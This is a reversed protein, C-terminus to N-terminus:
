GIVPVGFLWFMLCGLLTSGAVRLRRKKLRSRLLGHLVQGTRALHEGAKDTVLDPLMLLRSAIEMQTSLEGLSGLAIRLHHIYRGEEGCAQGEAVNSPVSVAARRMQSSMEYRENDPLSKVAGYVLLCLDM